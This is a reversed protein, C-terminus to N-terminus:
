LLSWDDDGLYLTAYDVWEPDDDLQGTAEVILDALLQETRALEGHRAVAWGILAGAAAGVLVLLFLHEPLVAIM